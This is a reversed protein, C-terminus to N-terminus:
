KSLTLNSDFCQNNDHGCSQSRCPALSAPEARWEGAALANGSV